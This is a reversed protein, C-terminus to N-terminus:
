MPCLCRWTQNFKSYVCSVHTGMTQNLKSKVTLVRTGIMENMNSNMNPVHTGDQNLKSNAYPM